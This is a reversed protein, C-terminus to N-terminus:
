HLLISGQFNHGLEKPNSGREKPIMSEGLSDLERQADGLVALISVRPFITKCVIRPKSKYYSLPREGEGDRFGIAM